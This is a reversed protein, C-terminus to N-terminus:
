SHMSGKVKGVGELRLLSILFVHNLFKDSIPMLNIQKGNVKTWSAPLSIYFSLSIFTTLGVDVALSDHVCFDGGLKIYTGEREKHGM